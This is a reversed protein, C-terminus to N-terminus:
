KDIFAVAYKDPMLGWSEGFTELYKLKNDPVINGCLYDSYYFESVQGNDYYMSPQVAEGDAGIVEQGVYFDDPLKSLIGALETADQHKAADVRIGAAGLSRLHNLYSAVTSQVYSSSTYLDPLGELDCYQVNYKSSYDNVQCNSATTSDYHHFDNPSYIPYSRSGYSSGATGVGSGAAMHNIVADVIIKVGAKNCRNVMDIFQSENGSRSTLIYSVPQYRTWWESGQIHEMPPSVQAARYGKPGLFSECEVAVDAWSWEFLQVSVGDNNYSHIVSLSLCIVILYRPLATLM